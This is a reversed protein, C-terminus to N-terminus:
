INITGALRGRAFWLTRIDLSELLEIIDTDPKRPLLVALDIQSRPNDLLLTRRYDFLQGIATRIQFRGSTSSASTKAEILLHRGKRWNRLLLDYPEEEARGYKLLVCRQFSNVLANHRKRIRRRQRAIQAFSDQENKLGVLRSTRTKSALRQIAVRPFRYNQSYIDLQFSNEVGVEGSLILDALARAGDADHTAGRSKLLSATRENMIPFLRAPDLCALAPSITNVLHGNGGRPTRFGPISDVIRMAQEVHRADRQGKAVTGFVRAIAGSPRAMLRLAPERLSRYYHTIGTKYSLAFLSKWNINRSRPWRRQAAKVLSDPEAYPDDALYDGLHRNRWRTTSHSYGDKNANCWGMRTLLSLFGRDRRERNQAANWLSRVLKATRLGHREWDSDKKTANYIPLKVPLGAM